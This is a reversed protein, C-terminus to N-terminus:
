RLARELMEVFRAKGAQGHQRDVLAGDRDFALTVPIQGPLDFAENIGDYDDAEYVLIPADIGREAAFAELKAVASERSEGPIMLDYSVTLVRGGRDALERGTELLEPLEAVCPKCWIAWFNLLLGSGPQGAIAERIGGLDVVRIEPRAFADAEPEEPERANGSCSALFLALPLLLGAGSGFRPPFRDASRAPSPGAPVRSESRSM